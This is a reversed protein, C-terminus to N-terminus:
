IQSDANEPKCQCPFTKNNENNSKLWAPGIENYPFRFIILFVLIKTQNEYIDEKDVVKNELKSIANAFEIISFRIEDKDYNVTCIPPMEIWKKQVSEFNNFYEDLVSDDFHFILGKPLSLVNRFTLERKEQAQDSDDIAEEIISKISQFAHQQARHIFSKFIMNYSFTTTISPPQRLVAPMHINVWIALLQPNQNMVKDSSINEIVKNMNNRVADKAHECTIGFIIDQDPYALATVDIAIIGYCKKEKKKKPLRLKLQENAEYINKMLKKDSRIRKCEIYLFFDEFEIIIDTKTSVDISCKENCFYSMIRLEFQTNRSTSDADFAAFDRGSNILNLKERIGLPFQIQLARYIWLLEHVERITYVFWDDISKFRDDHVDTFIKKPDMTPDRHIKELFRIYKNIRSHQANIGNKILLERLAVLKELQCISHSVVIEKPIQYSVTESM